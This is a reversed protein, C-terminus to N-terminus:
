FSGVGYASRLEQEREWEAAERDEFSRGAEVEVYDHGECCFHDGRAVPQGCRGDIKGDETRIWIVESCVIPVAYGDVVAVQRGSALERIEVGYRDALGIHESLVGRTFDPGYMGVIEWPNPTPTPATSM